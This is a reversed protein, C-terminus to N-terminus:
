AGRKRKITAKIVFCVLLVILTFAGYFLISTYWPAPQAAYQEPHTKFNWVVYIGHGVFAGLLAVMFTNLFMNLKKM